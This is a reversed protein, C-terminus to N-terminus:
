KAAPRKTVEELQKTIGELKSRLIEGTLPNQWIASVYNKIQGFQWVLEEFMMATMEMEPYADLVEEEQVYTMWRSYEETPVGTSVQMKVIREIFNVLVREEKLLSSSNLSELLTSLSNCAKVYRNNKIKLEEIFESFVLLGVSSKAKCDSARILRVVAQYIPESYTTMNISLFGELNAINHGAENFRRHYIAQLDDSMAVIQGSESLEDSQKEKPYGAGDSREHHEFMALKINKPLDEIDDCVLKGIVVHSRIIRWQDQSLRVTPDLLYAPIHMMGFDRILAALFTQKTKTTDFKLQDAIALAFWAGTLTKLFLDPLNIQMVTLQQMVLPFQKAYLCGIQLKKKLELKEQIVAIEDHAKIFKQTESYLGREDLLNELSVCISISKRLKHKALQAATKQNIVTDKKVVLVGADNFIDESSIVKSTENVKSLHETFNNHDLIPKSM